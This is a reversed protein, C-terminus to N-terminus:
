SAAQQLYRISGSGAADILRGDARAWALFGIQGKSVYASDTFRFVQTEMVDRIVYKSFDGFLITKAGAAPVPMDQNIILPCDFLSDVPKGAADRIASETHPLYLPRGTGDVLLKIAKVTADNMMFAVGPNSRYARDVSHYLNVIEAYTVSTTSAATVGLSAANLVGQPQSAGTGVTFYTNQSRAIRTALAGLLYGEIDVASDQLVELSVPVIKSSFKWAGLQVTGFTFDGTTASVNEALLEGASSTDDVTAWSIPAGTSTTIIRAAQRMGGFAKLKELLTPMLITPVTYGGATNTGIAVNSIPRLLEVQRETLKDPGHAAYARFAKKAEIVMAMTEDLSRGTQQAVVRVGPAADIAASREKAKIQGDLRELQALLRDSEDAARKPYKPAATLARVQAALRDRDVYMEMLSSM